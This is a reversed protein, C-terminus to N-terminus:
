KSLEQEKSKLAADVKKIHDDHAKQIQLEAIKNDDKPLALAKLDNMQDRRTNRIEIKTKEAAASALKLLNRKHEPTAKPVPIFIVKGDTNVVLTPDAAQIAKTIKGILSTDYLSVSLTVPDRVQIQALAILPEGDYTVNALMSPDAKGLKIAALDTTLKKVLSDFALVVKKPDFEGPPSAAGGAPKGGKGGKGGKAPAAVVEDDDDEDNDDFRGKKKKDKRDLFVERVAFPTNRTLTSYNVKRVVAIRRLYVASASKNTRVATVKASSKSVL